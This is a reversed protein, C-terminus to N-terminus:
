GPLSTLYNTLIAAYSSNKSNREEKKKEFIRKTRQEM